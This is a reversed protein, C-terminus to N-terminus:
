VSDFGWVALELVGTQVAGAQSVSGLWAAARNTLLDSPLKAETMLKAAQERLIEASVVCWLGSPLAMSEAGLQILQGLIMSNGQPILIRTALGRARVMILLEQLPHWAGGWEVLYNPFDAGKGCFVYAVVEGRDDAALWGQTGPMNYLLQADPTQRLTIYPHAEYLSSVASEDGPRFPRLQFSGGTDDPPRWRTLDVHHEIGATEFGRGTYWEPHDSWLVALAIGQNRLRVLAEAQLRSSLGRGRRAPHTVVSGIAAVTVQGLSTRFPRVLYALGAAIDGGRDLVLLGQRNGHGLAVPFDDV